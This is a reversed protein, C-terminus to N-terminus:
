RVTEGQLLIVRFIEEEDNEVGADKLLDVVGQIKARDEVTGFFLLSRREKDDRTRFFGTFIPLDSDLVRDLNNGEVYTGKMIGASTLALVIDDRYTENFLQIIYFFM